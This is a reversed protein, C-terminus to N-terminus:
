KDNEIKLFDEFLPKTFLYTQMLKTKYELFLDSFVSYHEPYQNLGIERPNKNVIHGISYHIRLYDIYLDRLFGHSKKDFDGYALFTHDDNVKFFGTAYEFGEIPSTATVASSYRKYYCDLNADQNLCIAFVYVPLNLGKWYHMTADDIKM